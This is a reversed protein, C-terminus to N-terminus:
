FLRAEEKPEGDTGTCIWDWSGFVLGKKPESPVRDKSWLMGELGRGFLSCVDVADDKSRGPFVCLQNVLREGWPCRPVWLKGSSALGRFSFFRAVKDGITPLYDISLYIGTQRQRQNFQPKIAKEILGSEDFGNTCKWRRALNLLADITIDPPSQGYWWDLLWLNGTEDLGGIGHETFDGMGDSVSYDSASYVNLYKPETGLDYWNVWEREFQNGTDPRPRQQYLAAWTRENPSDM